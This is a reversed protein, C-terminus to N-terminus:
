AQERIKKAVPKIMVEHTGIATALETLFSLVMPWVNQFSGAEFYHIAMAGVFSLITATVKPYNAVLSFRKLFTIALSIGAGVAISIGTTAGDPEAQETAQALVPLSLCLIALILFLIKRM